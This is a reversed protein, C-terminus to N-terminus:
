KTTVQQQTYRIQFLKFPLPNIKERIRYTVAAIASKNIILRSHSKLSIRTIIGILIWPKLSSIPFIYKYKSQQM